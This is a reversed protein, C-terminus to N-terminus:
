LKAGMIEAIKISQRMGIDLMIESSGGPITYAKVDRYLREVVEGQGGKTYSLGGFIQSAERACFEFTETAQAKLLAVTGGGRMTLTDADYITSQYIVSELWAHTSEIKMAMNSLKARIVPHERLKVGFTTRKSAYKISEELLCRSFRNAQVAIGIREPNFNSMILAFGKNEKGLLNGVPVQVDDFEVFTTGSGWVGMCDMKTTKVGPGREVVLLSLGGMGKGGTRVAAVFYDAYIGGSIWKKRGNVIYHTKDDSLVATTVLNAVDSGGEPETIALCIRKDGKVCPPVIRKKLEESGFHLVPPLGIGFGGIIGYAIGGSACRCMEDILIFSHFADWEEPPFNGPIPLGEAYETIWTASGSAIGALIGASAVQKYVEAPIERAQDWAFANPILNKETFKRMASRLKRHSDKYYPSQWDQYWFPDGFPVLDGFYTTDEDEEEEADAAETSAAAGISGIRFPAAQKKLVSPSHFKNFQDTADQGASKILIKKGGPHDGLFNTVDYVGDEIILLTREKSAQEVEEKSFIKSM